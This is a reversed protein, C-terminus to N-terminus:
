APLGLDAMAAATLEVFRAGSMPWGLREYHLPGEHPPRRFDYRPPPRFREVDLPFPALVERQTAFREFMARKRDREIPSLRVEVVDAGPSLLELPAFRGADDHYSAMEVRVLPARALRDMAQAAFACADHDPHGGEYPQAVLVDPRLEDVLAALAVVLHPLATCAEQDVLGIRRIREKGLGVLALAEVVERRRVAAYTARDMGPPRLAADNPAGDTAHVVFAEGAAALISSAGITEDDPHAALVLIRARSPDEVLRRIADRM